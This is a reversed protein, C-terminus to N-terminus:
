LGSQDDKTISNIGLKELQAKNLPILWDMTVNKQRRDMIAQYRKKLIQIMKTSFMFSQGLLVLACAKMIINYKDCTVMNWIRSSGIGIRGISYVMMFVIEVAEYLKTYRLGLQRLIVSFHMPANSVEALFIAGLTLDASVGDAINAAYGVVCVAHHLTM